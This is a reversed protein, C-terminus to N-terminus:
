LCLQCKYGEETKRITVGKYEGTEKIKTKTGAMVGCKSCVLPQGKTKELQDLKKFRNFDKKLAKLKIRKAKDDIEKQLYPPLILKNQVPKVIIIEM